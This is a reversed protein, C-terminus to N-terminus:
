IKKNVLERYFFGIVWNNSKKLIIQENILYLPFRKKVTYLSIKM